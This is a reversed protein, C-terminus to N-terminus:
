FGLIFNFFFKFFNLNFLFSIRVDNFVITPVFTLSMIETAVMAGIQLFFGLEGESCEEVTDWSVGVSEACQLILM